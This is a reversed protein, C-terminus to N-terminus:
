PKGAVKLILDCAHWALAMVPGNVGSSVQTPMVSCDVVRLGAVGRVRLEPDTVAGDDSGMRCTGTAHYANEGAYSAKLIEEDSQVQLGPLREEAIFPALQPTAMLKRLYRFAHIMVERDKAETLFNARIEPNAAPDGSRIRVSGRSEPRLQWAGAMFGPRKELKMKGINKVMTLDFISIQADPIDLEPKTKIFGNIMVGNALPGSRLLQYRIAEKWLRWGSLHVNLSDLNTIYSELWVGKHESLNEGVAPRDVTVSVGLSTLLQASGIGSLQLLKPSGVAGASVIVEGAVQAEHRGGGKRYSVGVARGNEILVREVFADTVVTLNKRGRAPKLFATAASMRRGRSITQPTYGAGHQDPGNIDVRRPTGIHAAGDLIAEGLATRGQHITIPLPGGSGRWDTAGLEHDEIAIFARRMTDWGWGAAGNAEWDDYDKPNGRAYVMGNVSSSGGLTKGRLWVGPKDGTAAEAESPYYWMYKPDSAIKGMGMPIHIFMSRDEPGAEILLVKNRGDASLRNALVCGASGAGVIIYDFM